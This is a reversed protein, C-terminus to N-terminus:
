FEFRLSMAMQRPARASTYRGFQVNTQVIRGQLYSSLDFTPSGNIGSWQTHNPLNYMEARFTFGRGRESKLPFFKAFTVDWNNMTTPQFMYSNGGANGFCAMNKSTWSCASPPVFVSTDIAQWFTRKDKPIMPDGLVIMRAGEASGTVDPGPNTATTGTFSCCGISTRTASQISTIGSISWNDTVIGLLRSGLRKGLSPLEYIYNFVLIHPATGTPGYNRFKDPWYPSAGTTEMVKSFTYALGYSLGRAMGRRVSVQLSHYNSSREFDRLQVDGLGALPRFFSEALSRNAHAPLSANWPSLYQPDYRAYMPIANIQRTQQVHRRVSGVYSADVVTGFGVAQQIGFSWNMVGELKQRGTTNYTPAIPSVAAVAGQTTVASIPAYYLTKNLTIPPQGNMSMIQNGDGRHYFQGFGTRLATKGNGFVDWALGLRIAPVLGRVTYGSQPLGKGDMVVMGPTYTPCAAYGGVACPVFTGVLSPYTTYGTKLDVAVQNRRADYDPYYLRAVKSPDYTSMVFSASTNNLNEQPMLHYFRIGADVTLRRNVRWNDQLFAEVGTFWFDGMVRWGESYNQFNGVLANTYGNGTNQPMASSASFTYAGLYQGQGGQQWKGTREYSFGVKLSHAGKIISLNDGFTWVDNFNTYPRMSHNFGNVQGVTSGGGFYIGPVFVSFNQSGPPLGPRKGNKDNVFSPDKEDFWHPPNAMRSRDLQSPDTPYYDWSNWSKGFIFENVITPSITYTAGAGWGHGPNPHDASYPVWQNKSNLMEFNGNTVWFDYDNIYRVWGSLKSTLYADFRVVDNRRPHRENFLFRYNRRDLQTADSEQWCKSPDAGSAGCRNPMPLFNLMALGAANFMSRPVVNGAFPQRSTPEFIPILRHNQDYTQSFDGAREMATPMNYYDVTTTPKQKTYEQSVFFFFKKEKPNFVKPINVPGGVGFGGIFFRYISKPRNNFNDFFNKANFMEHRKTAWATGHFDRTGSKTIVSIQAGASRGYEAQYNATLVRIESISDMNPEYHTTGNSGTDLDVIGDVTFNARGTGMGNVNVGGISDESTTEGVRTAVVGPILNLMGMMDRGKLAIRLLQTGDVLSSKESSATQVPTVEAAVTVQETLSGLALRIRGLDRTESSALNIGQQTYAKFGQAQLAITYTGPPLNTFRFIGEVSTTFTRVMGTGQDRLQVEVGPVSADGPDTVTGIINSSVAQGFVSGCLLALTCMLQVTRGGLM